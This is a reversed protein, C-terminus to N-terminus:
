KLVSRSMKWQAELPSQSNRRTWRVWDNWGELSWFESGEDPSEVRQIRLLPGGSRDLSIRWADNFCLYLLGSAVHNALCTSTGVTGLHKGIPAIQDIVEHPPYRFMYTFAEMLPKERPTWERSHTITAGLLLWNADPLMRRRVLIRRVGKEPQGSPGCPPGDASRTLGGLYTLRYFGGREIIVGSRYWPESADCVFEVFEGISLNHLDPQGTKAFIVEGRDIVSPHLSSISWDPESEPVPHWRPWTGFMNWIPVRKTEDHLRALPNPSIENRAGSRFSLGNMSMAQMMWELPMNSADHRKYGGGVDAHAGRFWVQKLTGRFGSPSFVVPLFQSRREDMALAQYVARCARPPTLSFAPMNRYRPFPRFCWGWLPFGVSFSAVTDFLGLFHVAVPEPEYEATPSGFSARVMDPRLEVGIDPSWRLQYARVVDPAYRIYEARLLGCSSIVDAISRAAFAGRSFGILYIRDGPRYQRVLESYGRAITEPIGAGLGGEVM